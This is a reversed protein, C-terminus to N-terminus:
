CMPWHALETLTPENAHETAEGSHATNSAISSIARSAWVGMDSATKLQLGASSTGTAVEVARLLAEYNAEVQARSVSGGGTENLSHAFMERKQRAVAYFEFSHHKLWKFGPTICKVVYKYGRLHTGSATSSTYQTYAAIKLPGVCLQGNSLRYSQTGPDSGDFVGTRLMAQNAVIKNQALARTTVKEDESDYFCLNVEFQLQSALLRQTSPAEGEVPDGEVLDDDRVREGTGVSVLQYCLSHLLTKEVFPMLRGNKKYYAYCNPFRIHKTECCQSFRVPGDSAPPVNMMRLCFAHTSTSSGLSMSSEEHTNNAGVVDSARPALGNLLQFDKARLADPLRINNKRAHRLFVVLLRKHHELDVYVRGLQQRCKAHGRLQKRVAPSRERAEGTLALPTESRADYVLDDEESDGDIDLLPGDLLTTTASALTNTPCSTDM